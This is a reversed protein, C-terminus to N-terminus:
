HRATGKIDRPDTESAIIENEALSELLPTVCEETFIHVHFRVAKSAYYEYKSKRSASDKAASKLESNM